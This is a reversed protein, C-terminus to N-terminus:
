VRRHGGKWGEELPVALGETLGGAGRGGAFSFAYLAVLKQTIFLVREPENQINWVTVMVDSRIAEQAHNSSSLRLTWNVGCRPKILTDFLHRFLQFLHFPLQLMRRHINIHPLMFLCLPLQLINNALDSSEPHRLILHPLILPPPHTKLSESCCVLQEGM